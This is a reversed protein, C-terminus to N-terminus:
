QLPLWKDSVNFRKNIHKRREKRILSENTPTALKKEAEGKQATCLTQLIQVRKWDEPNLEEPKAHIFRLVEGQTTQLKTPIEKDLKLLWRLDHQLHRLLLRLESAVAGGASAKGTAALLQEVASQDIGKILSEEVKTFNTKTM